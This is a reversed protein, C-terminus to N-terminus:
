GQDSGGGAGRAVRGKGKVGAEQPAEVGARPGRM